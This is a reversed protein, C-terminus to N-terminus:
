ITYIVKFDDTLPAGLWLGFSNDWFLPLLLDLGALSPRMAPVLNSPHFFRLCSNNLQICCVIERFIAYNGVLLRKNNLLQNFLLNFLVM